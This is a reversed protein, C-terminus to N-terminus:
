RKYLKSKIIQNNTKIIIIYYGRKLNSIDLPLQSHNSMISGTLNYISVEVPMHPFPHMTIKNDVITISQTSLPTTETTPRMSEIAKLIEPDTIYDTTLITDSYAAGYKNGAKVRYFSGWDAYETVIGNINGNDDYQVSLPEDRYFDYGTPYEWCFWHKSLTQFRIYETGSTILNLDLIGSTFMDMWEWDWTYSLTVNTIKPRAPLVNFYITRVDTPVGDKYIEVVIETYTAYNFAESQYLKYSYEWNIENPSIDFTTSAMDSQLDIIYKSENNFPGTQGRPWEYRVYIRWDVAEGNDTHLTFDEGDTFIHNISVTDGNKLVVDDSITQSYCISPLCVLIILILERSM